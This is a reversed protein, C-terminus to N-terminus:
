LALIPVTMRPYLPLKERLTKELITKVASMGAASVGIMLYKM